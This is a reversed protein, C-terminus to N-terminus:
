TSPQTSADSREFSATRADYQGLLLPGFYLNFKSQEFPELGVTWGSLATSIFVAQGKVRIHGRSQVRRTEMKPYTLEDPTGEFKRESPRYLEAPRKMGLAEHPREENFTRRWEEFSAQQEQGRLERQIDLHLREHAGNDQPCGPRGRELDIGLVVWWASLKSLGLVGKSTAFPVGNDSRIAQPLGHREFLREFCARVTQSRADAVARVELVYRTWEDRVTLPECRGGAGHWWGKFDVTWIENPAKAHRGSSLRGAQSPLKQRRKQVLDARELVRKFSSESPVQDHHRQYIDRLKRPGWSPHANKLRIIECVVAEALEKAHGVPRRSFESLGELGQQYFRARWKYGTKASIGYEQCLQRFNRTHLAKLVFEKRQNM